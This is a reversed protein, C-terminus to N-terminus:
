ELICARYKNEEGNNQRFRGVNDNISLICYLCLLLHKWDEKDFCVNGFRTFAKALELTWSQLVHM